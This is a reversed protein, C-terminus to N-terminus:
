NLAFNIKPVSQASSWEFVYMIKFSFNLFPSNISRPPIFHLVRLCNHNKSGSKVWVCYLSIPKIFFLETDSRSFYAPRNLNFCKIKNM